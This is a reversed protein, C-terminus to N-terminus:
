KAKAASTKATKPKAPSKSKPKANSGKLTKKVEAHVSKWQGKLEQVVEAVEDLTMGKIKKYKEGLEEVVKNYTEENIEKARELKELVEGKMKFAWSKIHKLSQKGKKTNFLFKAGLTAAVLLGTIGAGIIVKEGTTTQTKNSSTNTM